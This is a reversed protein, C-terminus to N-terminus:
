HPARERAPACASNRWSLPTGPRVGSTPLPRLPESRPPPSRARRPRRRRRRRRPRRRWQAPHSRRPQQPSLQPAAHRRRAGLTPFDKLGTIEELNPWGPELFRGACGKLTGEPIRAQVGRFGVFRWPVLQGGSLPGLGEFCLSNSHTERALRQIPKANPTMEPCGPPISQTGPPDLLKEFPEESSRGPLNEARFVEWCQKRRQKRAAGVCVRASPVCPPAPTPTRARM